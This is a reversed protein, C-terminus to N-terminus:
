SRAIREWVRAASARARAAIEGEDATVLVGNDVVPEGAVMVCAIPARLLGSGLHDFLTRTSFETAPRYDVLVLDAPAGPEITGLGEGFHRAAWRPGNVFLRRYHLRAREGTAWGGAADALPPANVSADSGWAIEAERVLAAVAGMACLADGRERATGLLGRPAAEAHAWLAPPRSERWQRGGRWREGPTLDLGLEVHVALRGDAHELARDVLADLGALTAAHVGITGRLRGERGRASEAALSASEEFAARREAPPDHEAAGYCTAVRVGVQRAAGAIESLSLELCSESRHFDCVTTVGHRVGEALAATAAWRVDEASLARDYRRWAATGRLGLGRALHRALHAHTNVFGPMLVRGRAPWLTDEPHAAAVEGAPGVQAIHAGVVRVAAGEIVRPTAGGTMVTCPGIIM